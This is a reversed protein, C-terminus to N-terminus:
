RFMPGGDATLVTGTVYSAGDCPFVIMDAIEEPTGICELPLDAISSVNVIAGKDREVMGPTVVRAIIYQGKLNVNLVHNWRDPNLGALSIAWSTGANNVPTAVDAVSEVAAVADAIADPDRVDVTFEHVSEGGWDTEGTEIDFCAVRGYDAQFREVVAWGIGNSAGTVTAAHQHDTTYYRVVRIAIRAPTAALSLVLPSILFQALYHSYSLSPLPLQEQPRAHATRICNVILVGVLASLEM